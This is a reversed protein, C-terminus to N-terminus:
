SSRGTRRGDELTILQENLRVDDFHDLANERMITRITKIYDKGRESYGSLMGALRHGDLADENARLEARLGRFKEYARHQNLNLAYSRVTEYLTDYSRIRYKGVADRSQPLIGPGDPDAYQGFLANGERAFRSTGWGSEEAAQALALSPPIIDIRRFLERMDGIEVDYRAYEEDLWAQDFLSLSKGRAQRKAVASLREREAAIDENVRLVVPLVAKIFLAKREDVSELLDLDPPLSAVFRRPVLEDGNRVEELDYDVEDFFLELASASNLRAHPEGDAGIEFVPEDGSALNRMASVRISDAFAEILFGNFGKAPTLWSGVSRTLGAGSVPAANPQGAAPAIAALEAYPMTDTVLAGLDGRAGGLWIAAVPYATTMLPKVVFGTGSRDLSQLEFGPPPALSAGIAGGGTEIRVPTRDRDLGLTADPDSLVAGYLAAILLGLLFIASSQGLRAISRARSTPGARRALARPEFGAKSRLDAVVGRACSAWPMAAIVGGIM